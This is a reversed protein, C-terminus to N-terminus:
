ICVMTISLHHDIRRATGAMTENEGRMALPSNRAVEPSAMALAM